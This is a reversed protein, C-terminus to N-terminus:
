TEVFELNTTTGAAGKSVLYVDKEQITKRTEVMQDDSIIRSYREPLTVKCNELIVLVRVGFQTMTRYMDTIKYKKEVELEYVKTYPKVHAEINIKTFSM